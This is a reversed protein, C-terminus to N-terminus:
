SFPYCTYIKPDRELILQSLGLTRILFGTLSVPERDCRILGNPGIYPYSLRVKGGIISTMQHPKTYKVDEQWYIVKVEHYYDKEVKLIITQRQQQSTVSLKNLYYKVKIGLLFSQRALVSIKM